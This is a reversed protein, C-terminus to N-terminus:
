LVCLDQACPPWCSLLTLSVSLPSLPWGSGLPGSGHRSQVPRPILCRPAWPPQSGTPSPSPFMEMVRWRQCTWTSMLGRAWAGCSQPHKRTARTGTHWSSAQAQPHHSRAASLADRASGLPLLLGHFDPPRCVRQAGRWTPTWSDLGGLNWIAGWTGHRSTPSTLQGRGARGKDGAVRQLVWPVSAMPAAGTELTNKPRHTFM